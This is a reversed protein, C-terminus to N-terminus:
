PIPQAPFRVHEPRIGVGILRSLPKSLAPRRAVAGLDPPAGGRLARDIGVHQALRQFAQTTVTPLRRRRQVAAIASEPVAGGDRQARRLPETLLNAAAVADQVALNVGVGSSAVANRAATTSGRRRRTWEIRSWAADVPSIESSEAMENITRVPGASTM